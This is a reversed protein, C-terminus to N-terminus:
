GPGVASRQPLLFPRGAAPVAGVTLGVGFVGQVVDDVIVDAPTGRTVVRGAAMVVIEDAFASALNLDHLVALIAVGEDALSAAAELLSLQHKLDLSAIPEDLLLVQRDAVTRGAMLQALVRAFQTRQQEGGSLSQYTRYALHAVDARDLADALIGARDRSTLGRGIGDLGLRAVEGATFPFALRSAQPLVARCCALRWPKMTEVAVGGYSVRGASPRLEGSLLRVLTSKGAGNPGVVVAIRGAEAELTVDDVLVKGGIRYSVRQAALLATM